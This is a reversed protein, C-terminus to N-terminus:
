KVLRAKPANKQAEKKEFATTIQFFDPLDITGERLEGLLFDREEHSPVLRLIMDLMEDVADFGRMRAEALEDADADKVDELKALTASQAEGIKMARRIMVTQGDTPRRVTILRKAITVQAFEAKPPSDTM